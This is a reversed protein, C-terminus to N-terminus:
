VTSCDNSSFQDRLRSLANSFTGSRPSFSSTSLNTSIADGYGQAESHTAAAAATAVPRISDGRSRMRVRSITVDVPRPGRRVRDVSRDNGEHIHGDDRIIGVIRLERTWGKKVNDVGRTSRDCNKSSRSCDGIVKETALNQVEHADRNM